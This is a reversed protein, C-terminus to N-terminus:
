NSYEFSMGQIFYQGFFIVSKVGNLGVFKKSRKYLQNSKELAIMTIAKILVPM